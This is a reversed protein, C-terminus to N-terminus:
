IFRKEIICWYLIYGLIFFSQNSYSHFGRLLETHSTVKLVHSKSKNMELEVNDDKMECYSLNLPNKSPVLMEARILSLSPIEMYRLIHDLLKTM